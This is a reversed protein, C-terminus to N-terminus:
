DIDICLLRELLECRTGNGDYDIGDLGDLTLDNDVSEAEDVRLGEHHAVLGALGGRVDAVEVLGRNLGEDVAEVAM